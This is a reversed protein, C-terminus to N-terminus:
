GMAKTDWCTWMKASGVYFEAYDYDLIIIKDVM